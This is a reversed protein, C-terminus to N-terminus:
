EPQAIAGEVVGPRDISSVVREGAALGTVIETYEWNSLGIEVDRSELRGSAPEYVLVRNDDMLVFSPVRLVDEREDLLVEVDASYGPLLAHKGASEIEAEVDVTRAQRELDLVYPAVRRVYGPFSQGPFADLTIRAAQGARVAPADVEDIPATIYMCSADILDVSPPTPVGIPSPTVFEGLEGNIEAIVGAFPARLRTRELQARVVDARADAVRAAATAAECAAARSEANGRARDVTEEAALEQVSLRSLRDAERAAVAALVCSERGRAAAATADRSALELEAELDDNWLEILVQGAEVRDGEAVPLAAIQGGLAPSLGARTCANVTGARTNSVTAAVAGREVEVLSVAVPSPRMFLWVGIGLLVVIGALVMVKKM